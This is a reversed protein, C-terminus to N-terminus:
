IIKNDLKIDGQHGAVYLGKWVKNQKASLEMLHFHQFHNKPHCHKVSNEKV